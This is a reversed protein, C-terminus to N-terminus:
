QLKKSKLAKRTFYTIELRALFMLTSILNRIKNKYLVVSTEIFRRHIRKDSIGSTATRALTEDVFEIKKGRRIARALLDFDSCIKLPISIKGNLFNIHTTFYGLEKITSTRWIQGQHSTPMRGKKVLSQVNKSWKIVENSANIYKFLYIDATYNINPNWNPNLFEDNQLFFVFDGAAHELGCNLAPYIGRLNISQIRVPFKFQHLGLFKSIEAKKSHITVVIVEVIENNISSLSKLLETTDGLSSIIVSLTKGFNGQMKEIEGQSLQNSGM